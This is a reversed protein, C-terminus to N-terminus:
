RCVWFPASALLQDFLELSGGARSFSAFLVGGAEAGRASTISLGVVGGLKHEDAVRDLKGRIYSYDLTTMLGKCYWPM